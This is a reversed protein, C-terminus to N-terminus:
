LHTICARVFFLSMGTAQLSPTTTATTAQTQEASFYATAPRARSQNVIDKSSTNVPQLEPLATVPSFSGTDTLDRKLNAFSSQFTKLLEEPLKPNSNPFRDGKFHQTDSNERDCPETPVSSKFEIKTPVANDRSAVQRQTPLNKDFTSPSQVVSSYPTNNTRTPISHKRAFSPRPTLIRRPSVFATSDGSDSKAHITKPKPAIRPAPIPAHTEADPSKPSDSTKLGVASTSLLQPRSVLRFL